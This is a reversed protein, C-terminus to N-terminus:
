SMICVPLVHYNIYLYSFKSVSFTSPLICLPQNDHITVASFPKVVDKLNNQYEINWPYLVFLYELECERWKINM